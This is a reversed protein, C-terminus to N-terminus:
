SSIKYDVRSENKSVDQKVANHLHDNTTPWSSSTKDIFPVSNRRKQPLGRPGLAHPDSILEAAKRSWGFPKTPIKGKRRAFILPM